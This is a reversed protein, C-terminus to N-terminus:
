WIKKGIYKGPDAMDGDIVENNIGNDVLYDNMKKTVSITAPMNREHELVWQMFINQNTELYKGIGVIEKKYIADIETMGMGGETRKTYMRSIYQGKYISKHAHFMKRTTIDLQNLEVQFWDVIGCSYTIVPIALTKIALTKNRAKLQSKLIMKLRRVYEKRIKEKMKGQEIRESEEIGLYKYVDAQELQEIIKDDVQINETDIRRGRRLTLFACKDLGFEMNIDDSFRKVVEIQKVTEQRNPSFLKLDDMYFLHTIEKSQKERRSNIRYGNDLNNILASLPNLALVFLLPSLSDGQFIGRKIEVEPITIIGKEYNLTLNVKWKGMCGVLFNRVTDNIKYIKLVERIWSHSVSDYAKKYDIWAM